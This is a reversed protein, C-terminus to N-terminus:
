KCWISEGDAMQVVAVILAILITFGMIGLVHTSKGATIDSYLYAALWCATQIEM